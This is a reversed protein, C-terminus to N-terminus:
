EAEEGIKSYFASSRRNAEAAFVTGDPHIADKFYFAYRGQNLSSEPILRYMGQKGEIPEIRLPMKNRPRWLNLEIVDYYGRSYVNRFFQPATGKINFQYAQHTRVYVLDSLYFSNPDVNQQYIIFIPSRSRLTLPPEAAFGDMAYGIGSRGGVELGLKTVVPTPEMKLLHGEDIVYYGYATPVLPAKPEGVSSPLSGVMVEIIKNSVGSKKLDILAEPSLDFKHQSKQIMSIIVEDSLGAKVLSIIDDNTLTKGSVPSQTQAEVMMGLDRGTATKTALTGHEHVIEINKFVYQGEKFSFSNTGQGFVPFVLFYRITEGLPVRTKEPEKTIGQYDVVFYNNGLNDIIYVTSKYDKPLWTSQDKGTNNTISFHLAMSKDNLVEVSELMANWGRLNYNLERNIGIKGVKLTFESGQAYVRANSSLVSIISVLILLKFFQLHLRQM